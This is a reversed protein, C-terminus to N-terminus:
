PYKSNRFYSNINVYVIIKSMELTKYYTTLWIIMKKNLNIKGERRSNEVQKEYDFNENKENKENKRDRINM